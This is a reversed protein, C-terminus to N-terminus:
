EGFGEMYKPNTSLDPPTDKLIGILGDELMVDYISKQTAGNGNRRIQPFATQMADSLVVRWPKGTREAADAVWQKQELTLEIEDVPSPM